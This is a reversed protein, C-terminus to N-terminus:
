PKEVFLLPAFEALNRRWVSWTHAGETTLFEHRIGKEKLLTTLSRNTGMLQDDKGCAIWVLRLASDTAKSDKLADALATAPNFVASSFGGVWAFREPHTLGISIAQGGGMSLGAIACNAAGSKVRYNAEVFPVIDELLDRQFARVNRTLGEGPGGGGGTRGPGAAPPTSPATGAPPGGAAATAPPAAAAGPPPGFAAAHGDPMVVVMPQVKKQALLNNLILHAHGLATWTAQNDGAGHLLYLVPFRAEPDRDYNPPTYVYLGRLRDLSHSRYEHIRVTGHPVDQFEHLRPPDGPVQVISTRLTRSPKVVSNSPDLTQFGDVNFSYGHIEAALPGVTVSWVGQGDKSMLKRGGGWDGTVSVEKANPARLRFTVTRDAKVEPSVVPAAFGRRAPGGPQPAGSKAKPVEAQQSWVRGAPLWGLVVM